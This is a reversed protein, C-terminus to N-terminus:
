HLSYAAGQANSSKDAIKMANSQAHSSDSNLLSSAVPHNL